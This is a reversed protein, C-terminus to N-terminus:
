LTWDVRVQNTSNFTAPTCFSSANRYRAQYWRTGPASIQGRVSISEGGPVPVNSDGAVNSTSGLRRIPGATCNLGDGYVAGAGGNVLSGGQYYVVTTSTMGFGWLRLTDNALSALGTARLAGATGQSNLCGALDSPASANGCPCATASGDGLCSVPYDSTSEIVVDDVLWGPFDNGLSDGAWFVFRLRISVGAYPSLDIEHLTWPECCTQVRFVEQWTTGGDPSIEVTRTDWEIDGEVESRSWFSLTSPGSAPLPIPTSLSLHRFQITEAYSCYSSFNRGYWAAHTGSPFAGPMCTSSEVDVHWPSEMTWRAAGAEFDERFLEVTTQAAAPAAFLIPVLVFSALLTSRRM